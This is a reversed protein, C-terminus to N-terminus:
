AISISGLLKRFDNELDRRLQPVEDRIGEVAHQWADARRKETFDEVTALVSDRWVGVLKHYVKRVKDVTDPEFYICKEEFFKWVDITRKLIANVEEVPIPDKKRLNAGFALSELEQEVQVLRKYFEAIVEARKDHLRTFRTQHEFSAQQLSTKYGELSMTIWRDIISKALFGGAVVVTSAVASSTLAAVIIQTFLDM